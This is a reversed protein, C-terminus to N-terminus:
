FNRLVRKPGDKVVPQPLAVVAVGIVSYGQQALTERAAQVTAGTTYIDDLILIPARVPRGSLDPGLDFAESLNAQRAQASLQYQAQTNTTRILGQPKHPLGTWACFAHAIREAQNYGRQRHRDPHLPIPVVWPAQTLKPRGATWVKGLELGLPQALAVQKEYKLARLLRKVLDGYYAWGVVPLPDRWHLWPDPIAQAQLQRECDRCLVAGAPRQCLPCTKALFLDLLAKM